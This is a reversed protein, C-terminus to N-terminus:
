RMLVAISKSLSRVIRLLMTDSVEGTAIRKRLVDVAEQWIHTSHIAAELQKVVSEDSL